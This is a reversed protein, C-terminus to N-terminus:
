KEEVESLINEPNVGILVSGVAFALLILLSMIANILQYVAATKSSANASRSILDARGGARQWNEM